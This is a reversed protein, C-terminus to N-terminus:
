IIIRLILHTLIAIILVIFLLKFLNHHLYDLYKRTKSEPFASESKNIIKGSINLFFNVLFSSELINPNKEQKKYLLYYILNNKYYHNIKNKIKNLLKSNNIRDDISFLFNIIKSHKYSEFINKLFREVKSSEFFDIM